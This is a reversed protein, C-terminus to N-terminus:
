RGLCTSQVVPPLQWPIELVDWQPLGTYPLMQSLLWLYLEVVGRKQLLNTSSVKVMRWDDGGFFCTEQFMKVSYILVYLKGTFLWSIISGYGEQVDKYYWTFFSTQLGCYVPFRCMSVQVKLPVTGSLKMWTYHLQNVAVYLLYWRSLGQVTADHLFVNSVLM